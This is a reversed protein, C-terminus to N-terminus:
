EAPTTLTKKTFNRYIGGSHNSEFRAGNSCWITLPYAMFLFNVSSVSSVGGNQRCLEVAIDQDRNNTLASCSVIFMLCIICLITKM